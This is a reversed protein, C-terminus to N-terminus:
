LSRAACDSWGKPPQEEQLLNWDMGPFASLSHFSRYGVRVPMGPSQSMSDIRTEQCHVRQLILVKGCLGPLPVFRFPQLVLEARELSYVYWLESLHSVRRPHIGHARGVLCIGGSFCRPGLVVGAISGVTAVVGTLFVSFPLFIRAYATGTREARM